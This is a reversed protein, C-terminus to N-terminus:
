IQRSHFIITMDDQIIEEKGTATYGMKEYLHCLKNEQKITNLEWRRVLPYFSEVTRITKQAFGKGQYEPLIFMPSIRCVDNKLRVIRIAGINLKGLQILYYDTFGQKMKQKVKELSEAGPNTKHDQYKELLNKFAEVRMKHIQECDTSDAKILSIDM